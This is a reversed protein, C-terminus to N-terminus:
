HVTPRGSKGRCTRCLTRGSADKGGRLGHHSGCADCALGAKGAGARALDGRSVVGLLLGGSSVPLFGIEKAEMLEAADQISTTAQVGLIPLSMVTSVLGEDPQDSLDTQSVVGTLHGAELVLLHHVHHEGALRRARGVRTGPGVAVLSRCMVESVLMVEVLNLM